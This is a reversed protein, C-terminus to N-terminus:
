TTCTVRWEMGRYIGADGVLVFGLREYLAAARHNTKEVSLRLPVGHARARAQLERIWWTGLGLGQAEPFLAIDVLRIEESREAVYLRGVAREDLLLIRYDADPFRSAYGINRAAFQPRVFAEITAPDWGLAALEEARDSVYLEYLFSEDEPRAPRSDAM